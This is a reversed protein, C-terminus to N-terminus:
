AGSSRVRDQIRQRRRENMYRSLGAEGIKEGMWFTLAAGAVSGATALLPVVWSTRGLHASLIIVTADIGFALSFFLTSDLAALIVIGVPSAFLSIIGRSFGHM